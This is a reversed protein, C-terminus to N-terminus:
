AKVTVAEQHEDYHNLTRASPDTVQGCWKPLWIYPTFKECGASPYMQSFLRRYYYGEKTQPTNFPYVKAANALEEETVQPEVHEQIIEFLSKKKSAVGDSFAEKPRWLVDQPIINMNDFAKRILYKECRQPNATRDEQPLSLFYSTFFHDLFPVRLELGHAATTRDARCVDYMYLDNCLRMSENHASQADPAKFFYIYGQCVEDAGEGSFIVVTDTKERIYKSLLYMGISARITTIDYSELARVVNPISKVADEPTFIIEHHETNLFKAVKRASVIDPSEESMGISFTQIPYSIGAKHMESVLLGSILSSDLGGSLLCGIRRQAMLRMRVANTLCARINEYVDSGLTVNVDYKPRTGIAHFKYTRSYQARYQQQAYSTEVGALAVLSYEEFTGPLIAQVEGMQDGPSIKLNLLGKAESCIALTGGRTVLKFAPRVGFTDRGFYVKQSRTDLLIFAFVGYLNECMFEIGGRNYLHILSEGDCQTIYNFNFKEKLEKHNYIEGNYIMWIHPMSLIRIPQMGNLDDLIALRHFGFACNAYHNVNEFRFCDPGRHAIQFCSPVQEHVDVESGFIGWIGCM